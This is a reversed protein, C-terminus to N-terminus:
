EAEWLESVTVAAESSGCHALSPRGARKVSQIDSTISRDSNHRITTGTSSASDGRQVSDRSHPPQPISSSKGGKPKPTAQMLAAKTEGYGDASRHYKRNLNVDSRSPFNKLGIHGDLTQRHARDREMTQCSLIDADDGPQFSFSLQSPVSLVDSKARGELKKSLFRDLTTQKEKGESGPINPLPKDQIGLGIGQHKRLVLIDEDSLDSCSKPPADIRFNFGLHDPLWDQEKPLIKSDRKM